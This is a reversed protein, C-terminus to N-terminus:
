APCARGCTKRTAAALAPTLGNASGDDELIGRDADLSGLRGPHVGDTDGSGMLGRRESLGPGVLDDGVEDPVIHCLQQFVERSACGSGLSESLIQSTSNPRTSRSCRSTFQVLIFATQADLWSRAPIRAVAIPHFHRFRSGSAYSQWRIGSDRTAKRRSRIGPWIATCGIMSSQQSLSTLQDIRRATQNIPGGCIIIRSVFGRRNSGVSTPRSGPPDPGAGSDDPKITPNPEPSGHGQSAPRLFPVGSRMSLRDRLHFTGTRLSNGRHPFYHSGPLDDFEPLVPSSRHVNSVPDSGVGTLYTEMQNYTATDTVVLDARAPITTATFRPGSRLRSRMRSSLPLQLLRRTTWCGRSRAPMQRSHSHGTTTSPIGRVWSRTGTM